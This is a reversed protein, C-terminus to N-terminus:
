PRKAVVKGNEWVYLPTGYMRATRRAAEEARILARGVRAAFKPNRNLGKSSSKGKM